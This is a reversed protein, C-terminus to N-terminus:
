QILAQRQRGDLGHLQRLGLGIIQKFPIQGLRHSQRLPEVPEVPQIRDPLGDNHFQAKLEAVSEPVELAGDPRDLFPPEGIGRLM